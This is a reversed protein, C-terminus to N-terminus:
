LRGWQDFVSLPESTEEGQPQVCIASYQDHISGPEGKTIEGELGVEDGCAFDVLAKRVRCAGHKAAREGLAAITVTVTNM